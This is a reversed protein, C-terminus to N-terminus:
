LQLVTGANILMHHSIIEGNTEYLMTWLAGNGYFRRAIKYLSDGKQVTYTRPRVTNNVRTIGTAITIVMDNMDM